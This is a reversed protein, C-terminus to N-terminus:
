PHTHTFIYTSKSLALLSDFSYIKKKPRNETTASEVPAGKGKAASSSSSSSSSSSRPKKDNGKQSSPNDERPKDRRDRDKDKDKDKDRHVKKENAMRQQQLRKKEDALKAMAEKAQKLMEDRGSM